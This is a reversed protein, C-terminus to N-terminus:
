GYQAETRPETSGFGEMADILAKKDQKEMRPIIVRLSNRMFERGHAPQGADPGHELVPDPGFANHWGASPDKSYQPPTDIWQKVARIRDEPTRMPKGTLGYEYRMMHAVNAMLESPKSTYRVHTTAGPLNETGTSKLLKDFDISPTSRGTYHFMDGPGQFSYKPMLEMENSLDGHPPFMLHSFEHHQVYDPHFGARLLTPNKPGNQFVGADIVAASIARPDETTIKFFPRALTQALSGTGYDPRLVHGQPAGQSKLIRDRVEDWDKGYWAALIDEPLARSITAGSPNKVGGETFQYGDVPYPGDGGNVIRSHNFLKELQETSKQQMVARREDVSMGKGKTANQGDELIQGLDADPQPRQRYVRQRAAGMLDDITAVRPIPM